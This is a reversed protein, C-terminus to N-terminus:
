FDTEGVDVEEAVEGRDLHVGEGVPLGGEVPGVRM